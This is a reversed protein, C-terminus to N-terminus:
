ILDINESLCAAVYSMVSLHVNVTRWYALNGHCHMWIVREADAPNIATSLPRSCQTVFKRMLRFVVNQFQFYASHNYSYLYYNNYIHPKCTYVVIFQGNLFITVRNKRCYPFWAKSVHLQSQFIWQEDNSYWFTAWLVILKRV